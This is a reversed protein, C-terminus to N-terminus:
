EDEFVTGEPVLPVLNKASFVSPVTFTQEAWFSEWGALEEFHIPNDQTSWIYSLADSAVNYLHPDDQKMNDILLPTCEKAKLYGAGYSAAIRVPIKYDILGKAVLPLESKDGFSALNKLATARCLDDADTTYAYLLPRTRYPNIAFLVELVPPVLRPSYEPLYHTLYRFLDMKAGMSILEDKAPGAISRESSQALKLLEHIRRHQQANLGTKQILETERAKARARIADLDLKGTKNNKEIRALEHSRYAVTRNGAQVMVIGNSDSSVTGDIRTGNKLYLTDAASFHALTTLIALICPLYFKM